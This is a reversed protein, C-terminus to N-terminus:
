EDAVDTEEDVEENKFDDPNDDLTLDGEDEMLGPEKPVGEEGVDSAQLWLDLAFVTNKFRFEWSVEELSPRSISIAM